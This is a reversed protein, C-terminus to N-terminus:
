VHDNMSPGYIDADILGVKYGKQALGIALNSTVTSKGVGGKGSAVAIVNSVGPLLNPKEVPADAKPKPNVVEIDISIDNGLFRMLQHECAELLRKRSHMAPNNVKLSFAIKNGEIKINDVLGLAVVDKKLDPEIVYALADLVQKESFSMGRDNTLRSDMPDWFHKAFNCIRDNKVEIGEAELLEQMRTPTGFHMKGTLMGNRNVVRHAPVNMGHANNMAYGVVRSSKAAGLAKAIAGYSTVRGKPVLRVIDYVRDYFDSEM